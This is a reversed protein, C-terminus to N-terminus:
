FLFVGYGYFTCRSHDKAFKKVFFYQKKQNNVFFLDIKLM